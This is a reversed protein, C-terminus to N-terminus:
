HANRWVGEPDSLPWGYAWGTMDGVLLNNAAFHLGYLAFAFYSEPQLVIPADFRSVATDAFINNATLVVPAPIPWSVMISNKLGPSKIYWAPNGHPDNEQVLDSLELNYFLSIWCNGRLDLWGPALFTFRLPCWAFEARALVLAQKGTPYASGLVLYTHNGGSTDTYINDRGAAFTMPRSSPPPTLLWLPNDINVGRFVPDSM